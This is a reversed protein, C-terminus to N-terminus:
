LIYLSFNGFIDAAISIQKRLTGLSSCAVLMTFKFFSLFGSYMCMGTPAPLHEEDCYKGADCPKCDDLETAQYQDQYTGRPCAPIDFSTGEPCYYGQTFTSFLLTIFMCFYYQQVYSFETDCM